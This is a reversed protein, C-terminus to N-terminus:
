GASRTSVVKSISLGTGRSCGDGSPDAPSSILLGAHVIIDQGPAVINTSTLSALTSVGIETNTRVGVGAATILPLSAAVAVATAQTDITPNTNSTISVGGAAVRLSLQHDLGVM